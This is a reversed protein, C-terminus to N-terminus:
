PGAAPLRFWTRGGAHLKEFGITGRHAEIISRSAALSLSLSPASTALSPEFADHDTAPPHAGDDIVNTLVADAAARIEVRVCPMGGQPDAAAFGSRVLSLLVYQIRAADVRIEPLGPELDIELRGHYEAAIGRLPADIAAILDEIRHRNAPAVPATHRARIRGVDAGAELALRAIERFIAATQEIPPSAGALMRSGAQAFAAIAGLPQNMHHALWAALEELEARRAVDAVRHAPFEVAGAASDRAATQRIM